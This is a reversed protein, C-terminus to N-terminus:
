YAIWYLVGKDFALREDPDFYKMDAQEHNPFKEKFTAEDMQIREFSRGMVRNLSNVDSWPAALLRHSSYYTNDPRNTNLESFNRIGYDANYVYVKTIEQESQLEYNEIRNQILRLEAM